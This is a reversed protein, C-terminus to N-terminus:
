NLVRNKLRAIVTIWYNKGWESTSQKYANYAAEVRRLLAVQDTSNAKSLKSEYSWIRSTANGNKM